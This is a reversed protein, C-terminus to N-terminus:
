RKKFVLGHPHARQKRELYRMTLQFGEKEIAGQLAEITEWEFCDWHDSMRGGPQNAYGAKSEMYFIGDPKLVRKVESLLQALERVHDLCNTFAIDVSGDAFQIHHFDGHLVLTNDAGPNLDIGITFCGMAQFARVEGGLRAGLCLVSMGPKGIDYRQLVM